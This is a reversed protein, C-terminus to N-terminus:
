TLSVLNYRYTDVAGWPNFYKLSTKSIALFEINGKFRILMHVAGM